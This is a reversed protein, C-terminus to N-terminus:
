VVMVRGLNDQGKNIMDMFRLTGVLFIMGLDFLFTRFFLGFKLLGSRTSWIFVWYKTEITKSFPFKWIKVASRDSQLNCNISLISLQFKHYILYIQRKIRYCLDTKQDQSNSIQPLNNSIVLTIIIRNQIIQLKLIKSM